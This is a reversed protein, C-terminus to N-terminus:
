LGKLIKQMRDLWPEKIFLSRAQQMAYQSCWEYDEPHSLLEAADLGELISEADVSTRPHCEQQTDVLRNGIVPIGLYACNLSFTGAAVTNMMHIGIKFSSLSHMWDTWPEFPLHKILQEEGPQKAHMTPAWIEYGKDRFPQSVLYSKMGGYWRCANGGLIIKNQKDPKIHKVTDEILLSHLVEVKSNFVSYYKSDVLNHCFIADSESLLNTHYLQEILPYDEWLWTPGEQVYIVKGNRQKLTPIIKVIEGSLCLQSFLKEPRNNVLELGEANLSLKSKPWIICVFDYDSVIDYDTIPHHTADLAHIWAFETRMNPYVEPIKGTFDIETLFAIKM